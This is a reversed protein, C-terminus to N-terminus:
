APVRFCPLRNPPGCKLNINHRRICQTTSSSAPSTASRSAHRKHEAALSWILRRQCGWSALKGGYWLQHSLLLASTSSSSPSTASRSTDSTSPLLPISDTTAVAAAVVM